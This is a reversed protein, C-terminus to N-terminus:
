MIFYGVYILVPGSSIYHWYYQIRMFFWCRSWRYACVNLYSTSYYVFWDWSVWHTFTGISFRFNASYGYWRSNEGEEMGDYALLLIITEKLINWQNTAM